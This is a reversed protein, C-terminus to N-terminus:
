TENNFLDFALQGAEEKKEIRRQQPSRRSGHKDYNKDSVAKTDHAQKISRFRKRAERNAEEVTVIPEPYHLHHFGDYKWPEHVYNNPVHKLQPLQRRVFNGNPDHDKGQKIPNYIRITNFGTTGAQMQMQSYHIGPEYDLFQQALYRAPRKWNLMLAHCAFSVLMARSRFNIWGTKILSQMAADIMPIGTEGHKWREFYDENWEGFAEDFAVNMTSHALRPEDELRQIFHDHWYLRSLFGDLHKLDEDDVVKSRLKRTRQVVTRISLNGWALYPSLRSGSTSSALPKGIDDMYRVYRESLFHELEENAVSMGGQQGYKIPTGDPNLSDLTEVKTTLPFYTEENSLTHIMAPSPYVSEKMYREWNKKHHARDYPGRTVSTQPYEIFSLGKANMWARVKEDREFTQPTGHEEHAWLTFQGLNDYISELVEIMEAKAVFLEGGGRKFQSQLERLSEKVFELHRVSQETGEWISPEGVYLPLVNDQMRCAEYLPRHDDMRIDRKFWIVQVM